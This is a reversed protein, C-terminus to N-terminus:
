YSKNKIKEVAVKIREKLGDSLGEKNDLKDSISELKDKMETAVVRKVLELSTPSMIVDVLEKTTSTAAMDKKIANFLHNEHMKSIVHFEKKSESYRINKNFKNRAVEVVEEPTNKQITVNIGDELELSYSFVQTSASQTTDTNGSVPNSMNSDALFYSRYTGNDGFRLNPIESDNYAERMTNSVYHQDWFEAPFESILETKIELTTTVGNKKMLKKATELITQRKNM